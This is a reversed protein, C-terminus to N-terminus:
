FNTFIIKKKISKIKHIKSYEKMMNVYCKKDCEFKKNEENLLYIKDGKTTLRDYKKSPNSSYSLNYRKNGIYFDGVKSLNDYYFQYPDDSFEKGSYKEKFEESFEKILKRFDVDVLEKIYQLEDYDRLSLVIIDDEILLYFNGKEDIAYPFPVGSGGIPSVYSIIKSKAKFSEINRNIFIYENDGMNLLITNGDFKKGYAESFQVRSTNKPSKGIFIELPELEMVIEPELQKPFDYGGEDEEFINNDYIKVKKNGLIEVIYPNGGNDLIEYIM